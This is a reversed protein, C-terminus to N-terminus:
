RGGFLSCTAYDPKLLTKIRDRRTSGRRSRSTSDIQTETDDQVVSLVEVALRPTSSGVMTLVGSNVEHSCPGTTLMTCPSRRVSPQGTSSSNSQVNSTNLLTGRGVLQPVSPKSHYALGPLLHKILTPSRLICAWTNACGHLMIDGDLLQNAQRSKRHTCGLAAARAAADALRSSHLCSRGSRSAGTCM